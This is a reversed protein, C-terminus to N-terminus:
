KVPLSLYFYLKKAVRARLEYELVENQRQRPAGRIYLGFVGAYALMAPANLQVNEDSSACFPSDM